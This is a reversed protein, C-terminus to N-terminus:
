PQKLLGPNPPITSVSAEVNRAESEKGQARLVTALLKTGASGPEREIAREAFWQAREFNKQSVLYEAMAAYGLAKHPAIAVVNRICAECRKFYGTDAYIRAVKLQNMLDTPNIELMRLRAALEEPLWKRSLYLDALFQCIPYNNPEHTLLRLATHEADELLGADRFVACAEGLVSVLVRKAERDSITKFQERGDTVVDDGMEEIIKRYKLTDEKNGLRVSVNLLASYLARSQGGLEMAKVLSLKADDLQNLKLQSQGLLMWHAGLSPDKQVAEKLVSIAREEEGLRGLALGLHHAIDASNIGNARAKELNELAADAGGRFLANAAFNLYYTETKPSLDICRQWLKEAEATKHFQSNCVAAVHLAMPDDPRRQLLHNAVRFAEAEMDAKDVALQFTPFTVTSELSSPQSAIPSANASALEASKKANRDPEPSFPKEGNTVDSSNMAINSNLRLAFAAAALAVFSILIAALGLHNKHELNM